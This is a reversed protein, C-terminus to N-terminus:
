NEASALFELECTQVLVLPQRSAIDGAWSLNTVLGDPIVRLVDATTYSDTTDASSDNQKLPSNPLLDLVSFQLGETLISGLGSTILM